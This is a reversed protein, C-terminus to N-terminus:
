RRRHSFCLPPPSITLAFAGRQRHPSGPFRICAVIPRRIIVPQITLSCYPIECIKSSVCVWFSFLDGLKDKHKERHNKLARSPQMPRAHVSEYEYALSSVRGWALLWVTGALPLASLATGFIHRLTLAVRAVTMQLWAADRVVSVRQLAATISSNPSNSSSNTSNSNITSNSSNSSGSASASGSGSASDSASSNSNTRDGVSSSPAARVFATIRARLDAPLDTTSSSSSASSSASSSSSSSASSLASSSAAAKTALSQLCLVLSSMTTAEAVAGCSGATHSGSSGSGSSGSGSGGSSGSSGSDSGSGSSGRDSGSSSRMMQLAAAEPLVSALVDVSAHSADHLSVSVCLAFLDLALCILRSGQKPDGARPSPPIPIPLSHLLLGLCHPFSFGHSLFICLISINEVIGFIIFKVFCFLLVCVDIVTAVVVCAHTSFHQFL